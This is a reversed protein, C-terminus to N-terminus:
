YKAVADSGDMSSILAIDLNKDIKRFQESQMFRKQLESAAYAVFASVAIFGLSKLLRSRNNRTTCDM